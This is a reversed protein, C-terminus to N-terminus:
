RPDAPFCSPLPRSSPSVYAASTSRALVTSRDGTFVPTWGAGVLTPIVPLTVPLWVYDPALADVDAVASPANWYIRDHRALEDLPYAFERRGDLSPRLEPAFHWIAYLGWDSYTLMRGRLHNAAVFEAARVDADNTDDMRICDFAQVVRWGNWAVIGLAAVALAGAVVPRAARTSARGLRRRGLEALNPALFWITALGFFPLLRRASWSAVALWLLVALRSPRIGVLVVAYAAIAVLALWVALAPSGTELLGRWEGVDRLPTGLAAVIQRWIGIGYPTAVTALVSAVGVGALAARRSWERAAVIEIALWIGLEALGLVFGGHLNAWAVFVLPTWALRRADAGASRAQLELLIAFGLLSFLQPRVIPVAPYLAAVTVFIVLELLPGRVGSRHLHRAGLGVIACTLALKAAILLSAGGAAWGAWMLVDALWSQNVWVPASTFAYPDRAPIGHAVIDAGFRLHGWLDPDAWTPALAAVFVSAIALRLCAIANM